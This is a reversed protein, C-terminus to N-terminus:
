PPVFTRTHWRRGAARGRAPSGVQLDRAQLWRRVQRRAVEIRGARFALWATNGATGGSAIAVALVRDSCVVQNAFAPDARVPPERRSRPRRGRLCSLPILRAATSATARPRIAGPAADAGEAAGFIRTKVFVVP